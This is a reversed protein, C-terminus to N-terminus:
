RCNRMQLAVIDFTGGSFYVLLIAVVMLASGAFTYLFFKVAAYVRNQGGWQRHPFVDPDPEGRLLRLLAGSGAGSLRRDDGDRAAADVGSVARHKM